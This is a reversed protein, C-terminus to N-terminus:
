LSFGFYPWCLWHFFGQTGRGRGSGAPRVSIGAAKCCLGGRRASLYTALGSGPYLVASLNPVVGLLVGLPQLFSYVFVYGLYLVCGYCQISVHCRIGGHTNHLMIMFAIHDRWYM